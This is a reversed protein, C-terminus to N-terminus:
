VQIDNLHFTHSLVYGGVTNAFFVFGGNKLPNTDCSLSRIAAENVLCEIEAQIPLRSSLYITDSAEDESYFGSHEQVAFAKCADCNANQSSIGPSEEIKQRRESVTQVDRKTPSQELRRKLLREEKLYLDTLKTDRLTQTCFIPKPGHAECFNCLVLIANMEIFFNRVISNRHM